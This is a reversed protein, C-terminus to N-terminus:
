GFHNPCFSPPLLRERCSRIPSCEGTCIAFHFTNYIFHIIVTTIILIEICAAASHHLPQDLLLVHQCWRQLLERQASLHQRRVDGDSRGLLDQKHSFRDLHKLVVGVARGSSTLGLRGSLELFIM